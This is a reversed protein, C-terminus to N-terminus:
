RAVINVLKGPVVIVKQVTKGQIHRKVNADSLAMEEMEEKSADASMEIRARLKGMVQVAITVVDDAAVKEDWAPWPAKAATGGTGIEEWIEEAFHPAFPTLLGILALTADREVSCDSASDARADFKALTNVLEMCRAIATNLHFRTEIDSTVAAITKHTLRRLSMAADSLDSGNGSYPVAQAMSARREWVIRWIRNLFRYTGEVGEDRWAVDNEPPSAFLTFLRTADVGYKAIIGSTDVTNRKSKSMKELRGTLVKKGNLKSIGDEVEHPYHWVPQNKEDLTYQTELCVMGQTFLKSFPEAPVAAPILELDRLIRNYFRAYVLHGVAHEIGGIYHDVPLWATVEKEDVIGRAYRASTFRLFYWSSQVFTDFTDTERQAPGGCTPCTTNFFSECRALPSGGEAQFTVDEPLRVPLADEPVTQVGCADCYVVPIPAGWYRQRSICWDRLRYNVTRGGVGKDALYDCIKDIAKRNSLGNFQGSQVQIGDDVFAAEMTAPDLPSGDQPAIVVRIPLKYKRALEFDRQDHAPVAMVAGTGYDMLVFNAIYIPVREGNVPNVCYTGTFIGEKEYDEASRKHSDEAQVRDIFARVEAEQETGRVLKLAMPHEPALSMFTVGFLTDPRTTFIPLADEGDVPDELRFKVEAGYSKGIRARQELLVRDPWAGKLAEIGELLAEAYATTKFFWQTLEKQVVPLGYRYDRGDIVQENALVTQMKESWNVLATKRYVLGKEFARCFVMQEWKYYDPHCTAIERPWDYSLGLAKLESRMERINDYTWDAPHVGREIAANEAPLGFADWGMPHLVKFGKKWRYRAVVDGMAYNRVHGMHIRGSPYPFMELMYFKPAPDELRAQFVQRDEWYRRWKEEVEKPYYSERM